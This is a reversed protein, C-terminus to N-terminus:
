RRSVYGKLTPIQAKEKSVKTSGRLDNEKFLETFATAIAPGQTELTKLAEWFEVRHEIVMDMDRYWGGLIQLIVQDPDGSLNIRETQIHFLISKKLNESFM